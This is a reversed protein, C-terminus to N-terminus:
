ARDRGLTREAIRMKRSHVKKEETVARVDDGMGSPYM